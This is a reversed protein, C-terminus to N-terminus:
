LEVDQVLNDYDPIQDQFLQLVVSARGDFSGSKDCSVSWLNSVADGDETLDYVFRQGTPCVTRPDQIATEKSRTFGQGDIASLFAEYAVASNAFTQSSIVTQEFDGLIELRRESPTVVIRISRQSEQGVVSGVTTHTVTSNKSAYDALQVTETATPTQDNGGSNFLLVFVLILLLIAGFVGIIYKM